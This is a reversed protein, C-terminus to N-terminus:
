HKPTARVQEPKFRVGKGAPLVTVDMLSRIIQRKHGLPLATWAAAVDDAHVVNAAPNLSGAASLANEVSLLETTIRGSQERVATPSLLGDALLAALADRRDRLEAAKSRLKRSDGEGSFLSAADPRSLVGVVINEVVEDVLDLRRTMCYGGFCRYVMWTKGGSNVPSAFMKNGCKGCLAIGSLLYKSNLDDPATRRRPDTLKQELAQHLDVSFIPEWVGAGM